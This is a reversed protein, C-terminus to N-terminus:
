LCELVTKLKGKTEAYEEECDSRGVIGCGAFGYLEDEYILGSRIGVVFVGNGAEDILGIPSAYLGREHDENKEIFSLASKRPTGGLAPTPHLRDRWVLIPEDSETFLKTQLHYLNKTEMVKTPAVYTNEGFEDFVAKINSIVLNHEHANKEDKLLADRQQESDKADRKIFTGALAHSEIKSGKKELLLEPTSGLFCKCDKKYAFVFSNQNNDILRKIICEENVKKSLKVKAVRSIVIKSLEKSLIKSHCANFLKQWKQYECHDENELVYQYREDVLDVDAIKPEEGIYYLTQKGDKVTLYNAFAANESGFGSWVGEKVNEFFTKTSFIYKYGRFDENPKFSKIKDAGLVLENELPNYFLFTEGDRFTGWFSFVNKLKLEKVQYM